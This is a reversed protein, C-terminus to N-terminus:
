AERWDLLEDDSVNVVVRWQADHRGQRPSLPDLVAYGTSLKKELKACHQAAGLELRQLLYGLRKVVARNKMRLANAVLNNLDLEERGRWLAKVVQIIGGSLEPHDLTDVITKEKEAMSVSKEGIWVQTHGFFKHHQLQIFRYTLGHIKVPRKQKTTAIYITRSPQDTYGYYSLATWYSIYYPSVLHSAIILENETHHGEMGASFPVILYKGKELRQLWRRRVLYHLRKRVAFSSQGLVEAAMETTFIEHGRESLTTLLRADTDSLSRNLTIDKMIM